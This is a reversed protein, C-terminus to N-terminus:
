LEVSTPKKLKLKSQLEGDKRHVQNSSTQYLSTASVEAAEVSGDDVAAALASKSAASDGQPVARAKGHLHLRATAQMLNLSDSDSSLDDAMLDALLADDLEFDLPEDWAHVSFALLLVAIVRLM